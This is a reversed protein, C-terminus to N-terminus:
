APKRHKVKEEGEQIRIIYISSRKNELLRQPETWNKLGNGRQQESPIIEKKLENVREGIMKTKSNVEDMSDSHWSKYTRARLKWNAEKKM